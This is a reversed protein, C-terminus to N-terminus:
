QYQNYKHQKVIGSVDVTVDWMCNNAKPQAVNENEPCHYIENIIIMMIPIEPQFNEEVGLFVSWM